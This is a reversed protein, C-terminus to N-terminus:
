LNVGTMISIFDLDARIQELETPEPAPQRDDEVTIQGNYSANRAFEENQESWPVSQEQYIPQMNPEQETGSNVEYSIIYKIIKM